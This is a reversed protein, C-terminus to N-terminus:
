RSPYTDLMLTIGSEGLSRLLAPSLTPGGDFSSTFHGCWIYINSGSSYSRLQSQVPKIVSLLKNLGNELDPWSEGEEPFVEYSWVNEGWVSGQSRREGKKRVQTPTIGLTRTIDNPELNDSSVRLEVTYTHM